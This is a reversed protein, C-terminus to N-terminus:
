LTINIFVGFPVTKYINVNSKSNEFNLSKELIEPTYKLYRSWITLIRTGLPSKGISSLPLGRVPLLLLLGILLSKVLFCDLGAELVDM